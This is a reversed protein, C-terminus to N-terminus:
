DCEEAYKNIIYPTVPKLTRGNTPHIGEKTFFTLKNHHKDYWVVPEDNPLFFTSGKCLGILQHMKELTEQDLKVEGRKGSCDVAEYHDNVWIMCESPTNNLELKNYGFVGIVLIAIIWLTTVIRKEKEPKKIPNEQIPTATDQHQKENVYNEFSDYGLFQCLYEINEHRPITKIEKKEIYKEYYSVFTRSTVRINSMEEVQDSIYESLRYKKTNVYENKAKKFAAIVIDEYIKETEM